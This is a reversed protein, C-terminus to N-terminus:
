KKDKSSSLFAINPIEKRVVYYELEVKASNIMKGAINALESASTYKIKGNRLDSFVASLEVRLENVNNM